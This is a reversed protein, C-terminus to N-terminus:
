TTSLTYGGRSYVALRLELEWTPSDPHGEPQLPRGRFQTKSNQAVLRGQLMQLLLWVAVFLSSAVGVIHLTSAELDGKKACWVPLM